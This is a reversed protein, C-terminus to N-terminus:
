IWIFICLTYYIYNTILESFPDSLVLKHRIIDKCLYPLSMNENMYSNKGGLASDSFHTDRDKKKLNIYSKHM